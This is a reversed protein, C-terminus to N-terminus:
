VKNKICAVGPLEKGELYELCAGGGTSIHDIKDAVGVQHIAAVSDGGGIITEAKCSALYMAIECTGKDFPSIEFVGLPGNWLITNANDLVNKISSLSMPGVDLGMKNDPIQNINVVEIDVNQECAEAVVIDEPLLIKKGLKEAKELLLRATICKDDECLSKGVSYGQAKLFTFAMGGGIILTDVMTLLHELVGIKSSVKAGGVIAVFPRAPQELTKGLYTLEKEVLLGAYTPLFKSVGQTSAHARHVTGFADQVFLDGFSALERSFQVDNKTEEKYFRVNELLFVHNDSQAKLTDKVSDGITDECTVVVQGLLKELHRGVLHLSLSKDIGKPRGLHSVLVCIGKKSLIYEITPLAARIRSDDTITGESIPVNFDVRVLVYKGELEKQSLSKISLKQM